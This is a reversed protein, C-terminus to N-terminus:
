FLPLWPVQFDEQMLWYPIVPVTSIKMTDIKDQLDDGFLGATQKKVNKIFGYVMRLRCYM